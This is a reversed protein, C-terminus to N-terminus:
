RKGKITRCKKPSAELAEACREVHWQWYPRGAGPISTDRYHYNSKFLENRRLKRLQEESIGLM